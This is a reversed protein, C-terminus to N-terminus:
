LSEVTQGTIASLEDMLKDRSGKNAETNGKNSMQLLVDKVREVDNGRVQFFRIIEEDTLKLEKQVSEIQEAGKGATAPNGAASPRLTDIADLQAYYEQMAKQTSANTAATRTKLNELKDGNDEFMDSLAMVVEIATAAVGVWGAFRLGTLAVTKLRALGGIATMIGTAVSAGQQVNTVAGKIGPIRKLIDFVSLLLGVVGAGAAITGATSDTGPGGGVAAGAAAGGIAGVTRGLVGRGALAGITAGIGAAGVATGLGSGTTAKIEDNLNTVKEVIGTMFDVFDELVPIADGVLSDALNIIAGGLNEASNALSQMQTASGILAANGFSIDAASGELESLNDILASIANTAHVDLARGLTQRGAGNYGLRDLERLVAVLPNADQTFSFFRTRIDDPMVKEGIEKYRKQLAKITKADPNFLELLGERLGTAVTSSKLGANRLTTVASLYQESTLNYSKAVQSSLSLITKLDDASLKSINVAKTLQNSITLDDLDKYVTKMTSVLDAATEISSETAAAFAATAALTGAMAKPDTGAQALTAAAAAIENVSYKTQQAVTKIASEISVMQDNTAAAVAQISFLAKDLDVLGKGLAHIATLAQYLAGYGIAYRFFQRLLAGTYSLRDGLAETEKGTSRMAGQSDKLAKSLENLHSANALYAADNQRGQLLLKGMEERIGAIREKLASQVYGQEAKDISAVKDLGRENILTDGRIIGAAKMREDDVAINAKSMDLEKKLAKQQDVQQKRFRELVAEADSITKAQKEKAERDAADQLQAMAKLHAQYRAEEDKDAKAADKQAQEQRKVRGSASSVNDLAKAYNKLAELDQQVKPLSIPSAFMAEGNEGTRLRNLSNLSTVVQQVQAIQSRTFQLYEQVKRQQVKSLKDFQNPDGMILEIQRMFDAGKFRNPLPQSLSAGIKEYSEQVSLLVAKEMGRLSREVKENTAKAVEEWEGAVADQLVKTSKKLANKIQTRSGDFKLSIDPAMEMKPTKISSLAASIAREIRSTNTKGPTLLTEVELDLKVDNAM